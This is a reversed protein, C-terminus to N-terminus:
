PLTSHYQKAWISKYQTAMACSGKKVCDICASTVQYWSLCSHMNGSTAVFPSLLMYEKRYQQLAGSVAATRGRGFSINSKREGRPHWSRSLNIPLNIHSLPLVNDAPLEDVHAMVYRQICNVLIGITAQNHDTLYAQAEGSMEELVVRFSLTILICVTCVVFYVLSVTMLNDAVTLRQIRISLLGFVVVNAM